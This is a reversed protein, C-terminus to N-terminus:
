PLQCNDEPGAPPLPTAGTPSLGDLVLSLHRRWNTTRCALGALMGVVKQLDDPTVDARIAGADQARKTLLALSDHFPGIVDATLAGSNAAAAVTNQERAAMTLAAELFSTLGRLPDEDALAREITPQLDEAMSQELAARVLQEKQPFHRYVTRVGVGACRAIEELAADPGVEAFVDRAARVIRVVNRAADARLPRENEEIVM